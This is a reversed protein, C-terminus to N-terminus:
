WMILLASCSHIDNTKGAWSAAAAATTGAAQPAIKLGPCIEQSDGPQQGDCSLLLFSSPPLLQDQAAKKTTMKQACPQSSQDTCEERQSLVFFLFEHCIQQFLQERM